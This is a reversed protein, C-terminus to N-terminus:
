VDKITDIQKVKMIEIMKNRDLFKHKKFNNCSNCSLTLNMIHNSGFSQSPTKRGKQPIIKRLTKNLINSSLPIIHDVVFGSSNDCCDLNLGCREEFSNILLTYLENRNKNFEKRKILPERFDFLVKFPSNLLNNSDLLNSFFLEDEIYEFNTKSNM